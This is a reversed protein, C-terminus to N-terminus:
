RHEDALRRLRAVFQQQDDTMSTVRRLAEQDSADLDHRSTLIDGTEVYNAWMRLAHSRLVDDTANFFDM